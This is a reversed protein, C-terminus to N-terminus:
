QIMSDKTVGAPDDQSNRVLHAMLVNILPHARKEVVFMLNHNTNRGGVEGDWPIQRGM